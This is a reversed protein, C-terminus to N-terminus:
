VRIDLSFFLTETQAISRIGDSSVLEEVRINIDTASEHSM